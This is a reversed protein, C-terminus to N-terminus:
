MAHHEQPIKRGVNIKRDNICRHFDWLQHFAHTNQDKRCSVVYICHHSLLLFGSQYYERHPWEHHFSHDFIPNLKKPHIFVYFVSKKWTHFFLEPIKLTCNRYWLVHLSRCWIKGGHSLVAVYLVFDTVAHSVSSSLPIFIWDQTSFNCCFIDGWSGWAHTWGGIGDINSDQKFM